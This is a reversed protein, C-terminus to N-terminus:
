AVKGNLEPLDLDGDDNTVNRLGVEVAGETVTVLVRHLRVVKLIRSIGEDWAEGLRVHQLASLDEMASIRLRPVDTGDLVVPIFWARDNPMLRLQEIAIAVEENMYSEPRANSEKSFCAIFFDGSKIAARIADQWRQGPDIDDRDVWVAIGGARLAAAFRDVTTRNERVYSIFVHSVL